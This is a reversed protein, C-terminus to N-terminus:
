ALTVFDMAEISQKAVFAADQHPVKVLYVFQLHADPRHCLAREARYKLLM